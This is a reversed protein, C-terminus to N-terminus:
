IFGDSNRDYYSFMQDIFATLQQDNFHSIDM